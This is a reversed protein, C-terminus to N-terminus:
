VSIYKLKPKPIISEFEIFLVKSDKWCVCNKKRKAM